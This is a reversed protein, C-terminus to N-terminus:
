SGSRGRYLHHRDIYSAVTPPVMDDVPEGAAVRRRIETASVDIRPLPLAAVRHPLGALAAPATPAVGDRSAVAFTVGPLLAQWEHWTPLNAYQDQGIILFWEAPEHAQLDRVTDITYSPGSRRLERDDLRFRPEGEIALAVMARRDAASSPTDAKQWQLGAPLWRVEDLGLHDLASHALALHAHHPPDFTGGLLGIKRQSV